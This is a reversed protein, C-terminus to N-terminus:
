KDLWFRPRFESLHRKMALAQREALLAAHEQLAQAQGPRATSNAFDFCAQCESHPVKQLHTGQSCFTYEGPAIYDHLNIDM